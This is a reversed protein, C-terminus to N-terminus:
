RKPCYAVARIEVLMDPYMFGVILGARAPYDKPFYQTYVKNLEAYDDPTVKPSVYVTTEVVDDLSAGAAELVKKISELSHRTQAAIGKIDRGLEDPCGPQGSVFVYDGGRIGPSLPFTRWPKSAGAIVEKPMHGGRKEMILKNYIIKLAKL